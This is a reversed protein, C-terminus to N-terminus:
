TRPTGPCAHDHREVRARQRHTGDGVTRLHRHRQEGTSSRDVAVTGTTENFGYAVRLTPDIAPQVVTVNVVASTALNGAADRARASLTHPGNSATTTNWVVSYPATTDEAGLAVGDLLFQVGTVGTNDAATATVTVSQGVSAGEAPGTVSVTPATTDPPPPSAVAFSITTDATTANGSSDRCRVYYAYSGGNVLGAQTTSHVTAGTTTFTSTLGDYAVGPTTGYRCTAAENTVVGLVAQTTGVPLTGTPTPSSVQPPVVDPALPTIPTVMDTQIEAATLARAYIRVEDVRGDFYQSMTTSGGIRLQNTTATIAGTQAQTAVQVGNVFLRMSTGDYTSALHVWTGATLRTGGPLSRVAGGAYIRTAPRNSSNSGATLQYTLSNSAREKAIISRWNSPAVDPNVWAELTMGTTLDLVNADNVTVLDNTGDFNLAAGYRGSASWTAGSIAGNNGNGTANATSPGALEDFGYAAIPRRRQERHRQDPQVDHRQGGRRASPRDARASRERRHDHEVGGHVAGRHGRCGTRQWRPPVARRGGRRQGVREGLGDGHWQADCRGFSRDRVRDARDHRATAPLHRGADSRLYRRESWPRAGWRRVLQLLRVAHRGVDPRPGRDPVPVRHRRRDHVPDDQHRRRAAREARRARDPVDPEGGGARAPRLSSSALGNTDTVTCIVEYSVNGSFDHGMTPVAFSGATVGDVPGFFPHAHTEHRMIGRWSFAGAAMPGDEVDVASGDYDIVDGARFTSGNTPAEISVSPRNGVTVQIPDSLSTTEGDSVSLRATYNGVTTYTHVPADLSSSAGDGFDWAYTLPQGEPDNTGTSAFTVDLPATGSTPTASAFVM